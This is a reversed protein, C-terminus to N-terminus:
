ATGRAEVDRFRHYQSWTRKRDNKWIFFRAM